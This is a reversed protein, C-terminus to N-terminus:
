STHIPALTPVNEASLVGVLWSQLKGSHSRTVCDISLLPPLLSKRAPDNRGLLRVLYVAPPPNLRDPLCPIIHKM